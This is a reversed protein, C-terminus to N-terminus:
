WLDSSWWPEHEIASPLPRGTRIGYEVDLLNKHQIEEDALREFLRRGEVNRVKTAIDKYLRYAADEAAMADRLIKTLSEDSKITALVASEGSATTTSSIKPDKGDSLTRYIGTLIERHSREMEALYSFKAKTVPDNSKDSLAQYLEQAQRENMIAFELAQPATANKWPSSRDYAALVKTFAQNFAPLDSPIRSTVLNRDIVVEQNFVHAGANELDDRIGAYCTMRRDKIMKTSILVQPGHCIAAIPKDELLFSKVFAIIEPSQRLTEPAAGGPIVLGDFDEPRVESIVTKVEIVASGKGKCSGRQLGVYRVDAGQKTLYEFPSLVEDDQFKPAVLLAIFKQELSM